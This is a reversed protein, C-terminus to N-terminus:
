KKANAIIKNAEEILPNLDLDEGAKLDNKLHAEVAKIDGKCKRILYILVERHDKSLVFVTGVDKAKKMEEIIEVTRSSDNLFGRLPSNSYEKKKEETLSSLIEKQFLEKVMKIGRGDEKMWSMLADQEEKTPFVVIGNFLKAQVYLRLFAKRKDGDLPIDGEQSAGHTVFLNKDLRVQFFGKGRNKEIFDGAKIQDHTSLLLAKLKGDNPDRGFFTEFVPYRNAVFPYSDKGAVNYSILLESDFVQNLLSPRGQNQNLAGFNDPTYQMSNGLFRNDLSLDVHYRNWQRHVIMQSEVVTEAAVQTQTEALALTQAQVQVEGGSAVGVSSVLERYLRNDLIKREPIIVPEAYKKEIDAKRVDRKKELEKLVDVANVMKAVEAYSDTQDSRTRVFDNLNDKFMDVYNQLQQPDNPDMKVMVEVARQKLFAPIDSSIKQVAAKYNDDATRMAENLLCFRMIHEITLPIGEENGAAKATKDAAKEEEDFVLNRIMADVKDTVAFEVSQGKDLQRMRWVAQFLDRTFTNEGITVLAKAKKGQLIDTGTTHAQDYITIRDMPDIDKAADISIPKGKGDKEMM